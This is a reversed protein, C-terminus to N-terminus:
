RTTTGNSYQLFTRLNDVDADLQLGIANCERQASKYAFLRQM